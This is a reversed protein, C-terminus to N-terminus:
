RRSATARSTAAVAGASWVLRYLRWGAALSALLLLLALFRALRKHEPPPYWWFNLPIALKPDSLNVTRSRGEFPAYTVEIGDGGLRDVIQSSILGEAQLRLASLEPIWRTPDNGYPIEERPVGFRDQYVPEGTLAVVQDVYHAYQGSVAVLQVLVGLSALGVLVRRRLTSDAWWAIPILWAWATPVIYRPGWVEDGWFTTSAAICTLGVAMIMLGLAL